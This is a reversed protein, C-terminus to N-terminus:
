VMSFIVEEELCKSHKEPSYETNANETNSRLLTYPKDGRRHTVQLALDVDAGGCQRTGHLFPPM